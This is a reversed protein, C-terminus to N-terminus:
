VHSYEQGEEHVGVRTRRGLVHLKPHVDDPEHLPARTAAGQTEECIHLETLGKWTDQECFWM